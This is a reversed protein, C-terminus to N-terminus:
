LTSLRNDDIYKLIEVLVEAVLSPLFVYRHNDTFLSWSLMVGLGRRPCMNGRKRGGEEEEEEERTKGKIGQQM